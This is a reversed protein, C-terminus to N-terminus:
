DIKALQVNTNMGLLDDAITKFEELNATTYYEESEATQGVFGDKKQLQERLDSVAQLGPDVLQVQEGVATQIASRLHPFHTCGLILTDLNDSELQKLQKKVISETEPAKSQNAEVIRVFDQCALEKVFANQDLKHITESYIKSKITGDTAIVGIRKSNSTRLAAEAGPQIVGIVPISYRAQLTPLSAGTATNCAIVIAKVNKSVLFDGMQIAFDVVESTPRPGYPVRAEDGIYIAKEDPLLQHLSKVATLGGVGSDMFGIPRNDM